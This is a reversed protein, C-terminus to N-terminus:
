GKIAGSTMGEVILRNFFIFLIIPPLAVLVAATFLLAFDDGLEGSQFSFLVLQVTPWESGPLFVLPALFDNYVGIGSTLVVTVLVPRLLPLIIQFFTRLPGAGDLLAAEDIERPVTGLFNRFFLIALPLGVAVELMILGPLTNFLGISRMVFTTPVIALPLMLGVLVLINLIGSIRSARRALVFAALAGFVVVGLVSAVTLLGSVLFARPLAYDQQRMVAAVNEFLMFPDPWSFDLQRAQARTKLSQLLMFAFPGAYVFSALIAAVGGVISLIRARKM